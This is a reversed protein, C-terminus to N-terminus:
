GRRDERNSGGGTIIYLVLDVRRGGMGSLMEILEVDSFDNEIETRLYAQLRDGRVEVLRINREQPQELSSHSPEPSARSEEKNVHIIDPSSELIKKILSTKGSGAKGAVVAKLRGFRHNLSTSSPGTVISPMILEVDAESNGSRLSPVSASLSALSASMSTDTPVGFDSDSEFCTITPRLTSRQHRGNTGDNLKDVNQFDTPNRRRRGKRVQRKALETLIRSPEDKDVPMM